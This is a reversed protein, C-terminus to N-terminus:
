IDRMSSGREPIMHIPISYQSTSTMHSAQSTTSGRRKITPGAAIANNNSHSNVFPNPATATAISPSGMPKKEVFPDNSGNRAHGYPQDGYGHNRPPPQDRHFQTPSPALPFNSLSVEGPSTPTQVKQQTNNTFFHQQGFGYGHLGQSNSVAKRERLPSRPPRPQASSVRPPAGTIYEATSQLDYLATEIDREKGKGKGRLDDGPRPRTNTYSQSQQLPFRTGRAASRANVIPPEASDSATMSTRSQAQASSPRARGRSDDAGNTSFMSTPAVPGHPDVVDKYAPVRRQGVGNIRNPRPASQTRPPSIFEENLSEQLKVLAARAKEQKRKFAEEDFHYTSTPRITETMLPEADAQSGNMKSVKAKINAENSLAARSPHVAFDRTRIGWTAASPNTFDVSQLSEPSHHISKATPVPTLNASQTGNQSPATPVAESVVDTPKLDASHGNPVPREISPDRSGSSSNADADAETVTSLRNKAAEPSTLQRPSTHTQAESVPPEELKAQTVPSVSAVTNIMSFTSTSKPLQKEHVAVRDPTLPTVPSVEQATTPSIESDGVNESPPRSAAPSVVHVLQVPGPRMDHSRKLEIEALDQEEDGTLDMITRHSLNIVNNSASSMRSSSRPPHDVESKALNYNALTSNVPATNTSTSDLSARIPPLPQSTTAPPVHSTPRSNDQFWSTHPTNRNSPGSETTSSIWSRHQRDHSSRPADSSHYSNRMAVEEQYKSTPVYGHYQDGRSVRTDLNREAVEENYSSTISRSGSLSPVSFIDVYRPVKGTNGRGFEQSTTDAARRVADQISMSGATGPRSENARSVGVLVPKVNRSQSPPPPRNASRSTSPLQPVPPAKEVPAPQAESGRRSRSRTRNWLKKM